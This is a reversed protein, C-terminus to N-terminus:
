GLGQTSIQSQGISINIVQVNKQLNEIPYIVDIVKMSEFFGIWFLAMDEYSEFMRAISLNPGYHKDHYRVDYKNDSIRKHGCEQVNVFPGIDKAFFIGDDILDGCQTIMPMFNELNTLYNDLLYYYREYAEINNTIIKNSRNDKVPLNQWPTYISYFMTEKMFEFQTENPPLGLVEGHIYCYDYSCDNIKGATKEYNSIYNQVDQQMNKALMEVYGEDYLTAIRYRVEKTTSNEWMGEIFLEADQNINAVRQNIFVRICLTYLMIGGALTPLVERVTLKFDDLSLMLMDFVRIFIDISFIISVINNLLILINDGISDAEGMREVCLYEIVNLFPLPGFLLLKYKIFFFEQDSSKASVVFIIMEAIISLHYLSYFWLGRIIYRSDQLNDGDGLSYIWNQVIGIYTMDLLESIFEVTFESLFVQKLFFIAQIPVLVTATTILKRFTALSSDNRSIKLSFDFDLGCLEVLLKKYVYEHIFTYINDYLNDTFGTTWSKLNLQQDKIKLRYIWLTSIQLLLSAVSFISSIIHWPREADYEDCYKPDTFNSDNSQTFSTLQAPYADYDTTANAVILPLFIITSLVFIVLSDQQKVNPLHKKVVPPILFAFRSSGPTSDNNFVNSLRSKNNNDTLTSM